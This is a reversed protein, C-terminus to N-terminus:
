ATAALPQTLDARRVPQMDLLRSGDRGCPCKDNTIFGSIATHLGTVGAADLMLEGDSESFSVKPALHWGEHLECEYGLIANDLGTFIEYVPVGFTQWLVVRAVDSIPPEGCRTLAIVAHDVSALDVTGLDVMEALSQLDAASGVLMNPRFSQLHLASEPLFPQLMGFKPANEGLQALRMQPHHPFPLNISSATQITRFRSRSKVYQKSM